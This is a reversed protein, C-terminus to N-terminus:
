VGERTGLSATAQAGWTGARNTRRRDGGGRHRDASTEETWTPWRRRPCRPWRRTRVRWRTWGRARAGEERGPSPPRGARRPTPSGRRPCTGPPGRRRRGPRRAPAPSPRRGRPARRPAPRGRGCPPPAPPRHGPAPWRGPGGPRAAPRPAGTRRAAGRWGRTRRAPRGRHRARARGARRTAPSAAESRGPPRWPASRGPAPWRPGRARRARGPARASCGRPRAVLLGQGEELQAAEGLGLRGEAPQHVVRLAPRVRVVVEPQQQLALALPLLRLHVEVLRAAERRLVEGHRGRGGLRLEALLHGLRHSASGASM